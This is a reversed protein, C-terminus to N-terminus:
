PEAVFDLQTASENLNVVQPAFRNRKSVVTITAAQGASVSEFRYHGFANSRVMQPNGEQDTLYVLANALGRGNNTSVRGSISVPAATIVVVGDSSCRVGTSNTLFTPVSISAPADGSIANPTTTVTGAFLKVTDGISLSNTLNGYIFIDNPTVDSAAVGSNTNTISQSAGSGISYAITGSVLPGSGSFPNGAEDFVFIPGSASCDSDTITYTVAQNLTISLSSDSGKSFTLNAQGYVVPNYVILAIFAATIFRLKLKM